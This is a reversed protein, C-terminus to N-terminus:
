HLPQQSVFLDEIVTTPNDDTSFTRSDVEIEAHNFEEGIDSETQICLMIGFFVSMIMTWELALM